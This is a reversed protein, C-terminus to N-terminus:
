QLKMEMISKAKPTYLSYVVAHRKAVDLQKKGDAFATALPVTRASPMRQVRCRTYEHINYNSLQWAM